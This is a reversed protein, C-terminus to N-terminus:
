PANNQFSVTQTSSTILHHQMLVAAEDNRNAELADLIGLHEDISQYVREVGYNWHYNLFSRLQNQRHVASLMYRNGSFRALQEHFESNMEYFEVADVARWPKRRFTLHRARTFKSWERDLQFDPLLLAAPEVAKRFTYSEYQARASDISALFSWGNGPKREVLGLEALHRLVRVVVPLKVDFMRVIEQQACEDPLRGTNRAESIAVFLRKDEEDQMRVLEGEPADRVPGVLVFGRNVRPEVAGQAALLKLAGRIPTRSVGFRECLELEVLRYGPGAGQEKLFRLIQGALEAQLRSPQSAHEDSTAASRNTRSRRATNARGSM